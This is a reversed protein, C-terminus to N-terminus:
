EGKVINGNKDMYMPFKSLHSVLELAEGLKLFSKVFSWKGDETKLCIRHYLIDNNVLADIKFKIDKDNKM